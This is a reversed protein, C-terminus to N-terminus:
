GEGGACALIQRARDLVPRDVMAGRFSFAGRDEGPRAAAAEILARAWEVEGDTPQFARHTAGIQKPHICLKGAFGFRRAREADATLRAEDDIAPTVSDLPPAIGAVKSVVVIRSRAHALADAADHMGTDLQFDLAGFAIREVKPARAVDLVNWLGVASEVIPVVHQVAALAAAARQGHEGCDANPLV